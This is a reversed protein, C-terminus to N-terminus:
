DTEPTGKIGDETSRSDVLISDLWALESKLYVDQHEVLHQMSGPHTPAAQIQELATTLAKRRQNLLSRAETVDLEDLFAIGVMYGFRAPTFTTLNQRLLEQFRMEGTATIRYVHRPPRNGVQEEQQTVLGEQAMKDLLYYATSKKLDVCMDMYQEIFDHLQYGHMDQQRLLGLLLLEREM